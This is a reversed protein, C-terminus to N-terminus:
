LGVAGTMEPAQTFQPWAAAPRPTFLLASVSGAQPLEYPRSKFAREKLTLWPIENIRPLAATFSPGDVRRLLKEAQALQPLALALISITTAAVVRVAKTM